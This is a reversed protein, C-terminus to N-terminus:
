TAARAPEVTTIGQRRARAALGGHLAREIGLGALAPTIALEVEARDADAVRHLRGVAVLEDVVTAVVAADHHDDLQLLRDVVGPDLGPDITLFLLPIRPTTSPGVRLTRLGDTAPVPRLRVQRGGPLPLTIGTDGDPGVPVIATPPRTIAMDRREEHGYPGPAV